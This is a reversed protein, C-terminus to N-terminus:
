NELLSLVEDLDQFDIPIINRMLLSILRERLVPDILNVSVRQKKDEEKLLALKDTAWHFLFYLYFARNQPSKCKIDEINKLFFKKM